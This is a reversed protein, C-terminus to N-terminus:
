VHVHRSIILPSVNTNPRQIENDMRQGTGTQQQIEVHRLTSPMNQDLNESRLLIEESVM